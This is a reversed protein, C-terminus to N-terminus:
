ADGQEPVRRGRRDRPVEVGVARRIIDDMSPPRPPETTHQGQDNDVDPLPYSDSNEAPPQQAQPIRISAARRILDNIENAM